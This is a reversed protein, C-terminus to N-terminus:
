TREVLETTLLELTRHGPHVNGTPTTSTIIPEANTGFPSSQGYLYTEYWGATNIREALQAVAYRILNIDGSLSAAVEHHDDNHLEIICLFYTKTTTM